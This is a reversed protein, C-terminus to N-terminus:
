DDCTDRGALVPRLREAWAPTDASLTLRRQDEEAPAFTMRLADDPLADGMRDPWEILCLATEFAEEIGLEFVEDPATLRYLDSHWIELDGAQYTQVM